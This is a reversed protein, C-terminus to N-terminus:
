IDYRAGSAHVRAGKVQISPEAHVELDFYGPTFAVRLEVMKGTGPELQVGCFTCVHQEVM